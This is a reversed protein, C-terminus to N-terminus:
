ANTGKRGYNDELREIDDEGLYDGCQVEVIHAEEDFPNAIRHIDGIAVYTSENVNLDFEEDNKTVRVKGHVVVWHESRRAHKQLSLVAGSKVVLKKVQFNDAIELSDYSGWPRFVQRHLKTEGRGDKKLRDVIEKVNQSQNKDVVLVTDKTEVVIVDKLGVAAVLRSEAQIFTGECDHAMADGDLVNGDDDSDYVEQLASWSGVDSWGANLPVMAANRSKEMVAYDISDSRCQKFAKANPRVFDGDITRSEMSTQCAELIDPAQRELEALFASARFLFMGSNWYYNGDDIYSQATEADPKEVFAEVPWPEVGRAKARVYGYGTEPSTPVIGFTVLQGDEAAPIGSRIAAQFAGVDKIVHDAAMILLIPEADTEISHMAALAVAPATNRGEPELIIKSRLHIANIQEAVSFRHDENSVILCSEAVGAMGQIRLATAQLM